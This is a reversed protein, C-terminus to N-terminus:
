QGEERLVTNYLSDEHSELTQRRGQEVICGDDMVIAYQALSLTTRKHSILILSVSDELGELLYLLRRESASDLFSTAEDLVLIRPKRVLARAIGILQKEGASLEHSSILTDSNWTSVGGLALASIAEAVRRNSIRDDFLSVNDWITGSFIFPRQPVYCVTEKLKAISLEDIRTGSITLEGHTPDVLRPIMKGITTKGCGTRGVIGLRDGAGIDLSFGYIRFGSGDQYSFSVQNYSLTGPPVHDLSGSKPLPLDMIFCIRALSARLMPLDRLQDVMRKLPGYLLHAYQFLMLITGITVEGANYLWVGVFALSANGAAYSLMLVVTPMSAMLSAKRSARSRASLTSSLRSLAYKTANVAVIDNSGEVYEDTLSHLQETTSRAREAHPGAVISLKWLLAFVGASLLLATASLVPDISLLIALVGVFTLCSPLLDGAARGVLIQVQGVNGDIREVLEGPSSEEHYSLDLHLAHHLLGQRVRDAIEIITGDILLGRSVSAVRALVILASYLGATLQLQNADQSLSDADLFDVFHRLVLPGLLDLGSTAILLVVILSLRVSYEGVGRRIAM